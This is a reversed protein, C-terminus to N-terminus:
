SSPTIEAALAGAYGASVQVNWLSWHRADRSDPRTALLAAPKGPVLSVDFQNLPHSLGEGLAKIFAEKRTWCNFFAEHRQEVPLLRLAEREALSFFREAIETTNFDKRVREIDIGIRRGRAFALLVVDGSHSINFEVSEARRAGDVQPRGYQSYTFRLKDPPYNLYQGLLTRLTGRSVVFEDRGTPFRFRAARALEDTELVARLSEVVQPGCALQRQWIHIDGSNLWLSSLRTEDFDYELIRVNAVDHPATTM